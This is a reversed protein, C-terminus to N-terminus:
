RAARRPRPLPPAAPVTNDYSFQRHCGSACSGGAATRTFGIPLKWGGPGFDVSKRLLKEENGAHVEHCVRCNRGKERHVHVYHLNRAGDRFATATSKEEEALRRDHCQFCMEHSTESFAVYFGKDYAGNLLMPHPSAHAQHCASCDGKEVPGHKFKADAIEAQVGRITRGTRPDRKNDHCSDCLAAVSPEKLLSRTQGGHPGHCASCDADAYPKHVNGATPTLQHCFACLQEKPRVLEFRHGGDANAAALHCADCAGIAVPGHTWANDRVQAHCGSRLCDAGYDKLTKDPVREREQPSRPAPAPAPPGREGTQSFVLASIALVAFAGCCCLVSLRQM